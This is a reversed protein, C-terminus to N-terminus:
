VHHHMRTAIGFERRGNAACEVIQNRLEALDTRDREVIDGIQHQHAIRDHMVEDQADIWCRKAASRKRKGGVERDITAGAVDANGTRERRQVYKRADGPMNTGVRGACHQGHAWM